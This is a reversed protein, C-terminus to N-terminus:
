LKAATLFILNTTSEFANVVEPCIICHKHEDLGFSCICCASTQGFRSALNHGKALTKLNAMIVRPMGELVNWTNKLWAEANELPSGSFLNSAQWKEFYSAITQAPSFFM